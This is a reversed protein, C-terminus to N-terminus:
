EVTLPDGVSYSGGADLVAAIDAEPSDRPEPLTREAWLLVPRYTGRRLLRLEVQLERQWFRPRRVASAGACRRDRWCRLELQSAGAGDRYVRLESEGRLPLAISLRLTDDLHAATGRLMTPGPVVRRALIAPEVEGSRLFLLLAAATALAPVTALWWWRRRQQRQAQRVRVARRVGLEWGTAPEVDPATTRLQGLLRRYTDWESRCRACGAVHEPPPAESEVLAFYERHFRACLDTV